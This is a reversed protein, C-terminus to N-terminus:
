AWASCTSARPRSPTSGTARRRRTPSRTATSRDPRVWRGYRGSTSPRVRDRLGDAAQEGFRVINEPKVDIHLLGRAHLYDLAQLVQLGHGLAVEVPDEPRATLTTGRVYELVLYPGESRDPDDARPREAEFGYIRVISDHRLAALADRERRATAAVAQSRSLDKLVVDM